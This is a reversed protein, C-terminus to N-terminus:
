LHKSMNILVAPLFRTLPWESQYKMGRKKYLKIAGENKASVHLSLKASNSKHARDEIDNLLISGIGEGRLDPNVAISQLYFEEEQISELVRWIPAFLFRLLNFRFLSKKAAKRLPEDSFDRNQVGTFTSSMGVIVSDKEAFTVHEFSLSHGSEMFATAIISKHNDGLMLKFFGEASQDLYHAFELGDSYEPKAKRLIISNNATM